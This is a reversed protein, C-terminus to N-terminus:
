KKLQLRLGNVDDINKVLEYVKTDVFINRLKQFAQSGKIDIDRKMHNIVLNVRASDQKKLPMKIVSVSPFPTGLKEWSKGKKLFARLQSQLNPQQEKEKLDLKFSKSMYERLHTIFEADLPNTNNNNSIKLGLLEHLKLLSQHLEEGSYNM